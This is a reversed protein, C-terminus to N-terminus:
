RRSRSRGGGRSDKRPRRPSDKKEETGDSPSNLAKMSLSYKGDRSAEIVKVKIKDGVALHDEVKEVFGDTIESIHLLGTKGPLIEVFAGYAALEEVEGDFIEGSKIERTMAKVIEIARQVNEESIGAVVVTGDEEISVVTETDEQLGKITKGGSGIVLGIQDPNIKTSATKPAFESVKERPSEIVAEMAELVKMRADHSRKFVEPMMDFTLGKSKIDVQIATVGEDTGTMKFDMYGAGDELGSLDTLLKYNSFDENTVLGIGIGAVPAKIPVGADMLTLSSACASAMSSSGNSSLTESNLIITYPFDKQNPIVPGLAREVLMGHGIERGGAFGM